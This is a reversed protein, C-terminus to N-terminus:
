VGGKQQLTGVVRASQGLSHQPATGVELACNFVYLGELLVQERGHQKMGLRTRMAPVLAPSQFALLLAVLRFEILYKYM